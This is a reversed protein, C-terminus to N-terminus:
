RAVLGNGVRACKNSRQPAREAGGIGLDPHLFVVRLSSGGGRRWRAAVGRLRVLVLLIFVLAALSAIAQAAMEPIFM